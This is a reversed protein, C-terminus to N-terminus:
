QRRARCHACRPTHAHVCRPGTARRASERLARPRAAPCSWQAPAAPRACWRAPPPDAPRANASRHAPAQDGAHGHRTRFCPPPCRGCTKVARRSRDRACKPGPRAPHVARHLRSRPAPRARLRGGHGAGGRAHRARARTAAPAAPRGAPAVARYGRRAPPRHHSAPAGPRPSTPAAPSSPCKPAPPRCRRRPVAPAPVTRPSWHAWCPM